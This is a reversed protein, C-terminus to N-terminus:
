KASEKIGSWKALEAKDGYFMYTSYAINAM